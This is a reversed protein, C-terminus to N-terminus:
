INAGNRTNSKRFSSRYIDLTAKLFNERRQLLRLAQAKKHSTNKYCFKKLELRSVSDYAFQMASSQIM